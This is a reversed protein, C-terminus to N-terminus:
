HFIPLSSFPYSKNMKEKTLWTASASNVQTLIGPLPPSPFYLFYLETQSVGVRCNPFRYISHATTLQKLTLPISPPHLPLSLHSHVLMPPRCIEINQDPNGRYLDCTHIPSPQFWRFPMFNWFMM